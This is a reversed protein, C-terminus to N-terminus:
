EKKIYIRFNLAFITHTKLTRAQEHLENGDNEVTINSQQDSERKGVECEASDCVSKKEDKKIIQLHADHCEPNVQFQRHLAEL